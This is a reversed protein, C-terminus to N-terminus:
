QGREGERAEQTCPEVCPMQIVPNIAQAGNIPKCFTKEPM